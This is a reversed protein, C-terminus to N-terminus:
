IVIKEIEEVWHTKAQHGKSAFQAVTNFVADSFGGINLIDERENAQTSGNAQIDICVMKAKPCRAKIKSWETMTATGRYARSSDVWSENDSVYIVLDVNARENNLQVLPASCNTGGGGMAALKQANTMISDRSNFSFPRVGTEFPIIRTMKNVRAFSAAVLAAIDICRVATTGGARHGTVPSGMSGSVDPFVYTDGDVKPINQTAIEVADQLADRIETPVDTTNQFATFLQYPFVRAKKIAEEDRLRDAVLKVMRKDKFVNHRAFTNLNMRTMQWPADEAIRTWHEDKLPLATLMLFPVEPVENSDGKKFAEYARVLAPLHRREYKESGLLYGYLANRSPTKPKPHSLSIVDGLSPTNGVSGRFLYDDTKSDLWARVMNKVASGYCKTGTEGSRVIQTFTSLMKTNDIVRDFIRRLMDVDRDALIAALLAPMDKMYGSERAYLAVKAVYSTPLGKCLELVTKLQETASVYFTDNLCGTAAFQALKHKDDFSYATGGAENVTNAAKTKYQSLVGYPRTSVASGFLKKNAM